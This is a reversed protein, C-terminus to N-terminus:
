MQTHRRSPFTHTHVKSRVVGGVVVMVESVGPSSSNRGMSIGDMAEEVERLLVAMDEEAKRLVAKRFVEKRLVDKRAVETTDAVLWATASGM